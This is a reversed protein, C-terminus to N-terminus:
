LPIHERILNLVPDFRSLYRSTIPKDKSGAKYIVVQPITSIIPEPIYNNVFDYKAFVIDEDELYSKLKKFDTWSDECNGCGQGVSTYMVVYTKPGEIM